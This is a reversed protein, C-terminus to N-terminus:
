KNMMSKVMLIEIANKEDSITTKIEKETNLCLDLNIKLAKESFGRSQNIMKEAIYPNLRYKGVIDEKSKRNNVMIKISLLLKFQREIMSLIKTPKEGKYILENLIDISAKINRESLYSVLNFIDNEKEYPTLNVIDERTIDRGETFLILKEIENNVINMNNEVISCFYTLENKGIKKGKNNFIDRVKSQFAMGKLKDIKIVDGLSEFGKIKSSIKERDGEFLYHMVLVTYEPIVKAYKKLEGVNIGKDEKKGDKLFNSRYVEVMKKDSMFPLTECSNIIDDKTVKEGDFKIYNFDKFNDDILKCKLTNICEKILNEDTGCFIYLNKIKGSNLGKYFDDLSIM